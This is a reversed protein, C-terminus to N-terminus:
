GDGGGGGSDDDDGGGCGHGGGDDDMYDTITELWKRLAKNRQGEEDLSKQQLRNNWLKNFTSKIVACIQQNVLTHSVNIATLPM